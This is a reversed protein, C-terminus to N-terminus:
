VLALLAEINGVLDYVCKASPYQADTSQASISTVKNSINEKGSIDQHQTLYGKNEIETKSYVDASNAKLNLRTLIEDKNFADIIGYGAITQAKDAKASDMADIEDEFYDELDNKVYDVYNRVAGVTPYNDEADGSQSQNSISAKKNLVVEKGSVDVMGAIEEKDEETLVYHDGDIIARVEELLEPITGYSEDTVEADYLISPNVRIWLPYPLTLVQNNSNDFVTVEVNIDMRKRFHLNDIPILINGQENITCTISDNILQKTRREVISASATFGEGTEFVYDGQRLILEIVRTNVDNVHTVLIRKPPYDRNIDYIVKINKIEMKVEQINKIESFFVEEM